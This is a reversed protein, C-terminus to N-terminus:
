YKVLESINSVFDCCGGLVYVHIKILPKIQNVFGNAAMSTTGKRREFPDINFYTWPLRVLLKYCGLLM